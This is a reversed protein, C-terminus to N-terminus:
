VATVSCRSQRQILNVCKAAICFTQLLRVWLVGRLDKQLFILKNGVPLLNAGQSRFAVSAQIVGVPSRSSVPQYPSSGERRSSM